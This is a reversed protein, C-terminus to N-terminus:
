RSHTYKCVAKMFEDQQKTKTLTGLSPKVLVIYHGVMTLKEFLAYLRRRLENRRVASKAVKKSVVVAVKRDRQPIYIVQFFPTHTRQGEKFVASFEQRTMRENSKLM